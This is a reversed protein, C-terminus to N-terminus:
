SSFFAILTFRWCIFSHAAMEYFCKRLSGFPFFVQHNKQFDDETKLHKTINNYLDGAVFRVHDFQILPALM